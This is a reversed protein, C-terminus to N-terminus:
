KCESCYQHSAELIIEKSKNAKKFVHNTLSRSPKYLSDGVKLITQFNEIYQMTNTFLLTDTGNYITYTFIYKDSTDIYAKTVIGNIETRFVKNTVKSNIEEASPPNILFFYAFLTFAFIEILLLIKKNM